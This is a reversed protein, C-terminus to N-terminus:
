RQVILKKSISKSYDTARVLYLGPAPLGDVALTLEKGYMETEFVVRGTMDHISIRSPGAFGELQITFNTHAPVPFIKMNKKQEDLEQPVAVIIWLEYMNQVEDSFITYSLNKFDMFSQKAAVTSTPHPVYPVSWSANIWTLLWAIKIAKGSPDDVIAPIITDKWYKSAMDGNTGDNRFGSESFIAVKNNAQAHDVILAMNQRFSTANIEYADLGLVDVYDDGPYYNFNTPTNPSWCFLVSTTREKVYEVTLQYLLKYNAATTAQTGWWFWGGNMEHFPRFVIPIKEGDVVLDNNIIDIVKDLEGFFWERDEGDPFAVINDALDKTAERYEYTTTGKGSLHWDFTIALGQQYAWKVAETHYNRETANKDLYYHFDSGLVAPHAGTVSFCDSYTKDGHASGSSYQFSNFFEQGFLFFPANQIAKLNSYLTKTKETADDDVQSFARLFVLVCVLTFFFQRFM